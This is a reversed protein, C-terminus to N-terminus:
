QKKYKGDFSCGAGHCLCDIEEIDIGDITKTFKLSCKDEYCKDKFTAIDNSEIQAYGEIEGICEPTASVFIKFKINDDSNGKDIILEGSANEYYDLDKNYDGKWEWSYTGFWENHKAETVTSTDKPQESEKNGGCSILSTFSIFMIFMSITTKMKSNSSKTNKM